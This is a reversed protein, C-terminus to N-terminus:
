PVWKTVNYLQGENSRVQCRWDRSRDFFCGVSGDKASTAVINLFAGGYVDSLRESERLWDETDSQIICLSDVWLYPIGLYKTVYIAEFVTKTLADAPIEKRFDALNAATLYVFPLAGWCHSLTAYRILQAIRQM